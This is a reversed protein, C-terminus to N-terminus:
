KKPPPNFNFPLDVAIQRPVGDKVRPLFRWLRIAELASEGFAPDTASVVKPDVIRGAPSIAFHLVAHGRVGQKVLSAPYEAPPGFYPKPPADTVDAIQKRVMGDLKSEIVEFPMASHFVEMGGVFVHTAYRGEGIPSALMVSGAIRQPKHPELHGIERVFFIREGAKTRMDIVLFVDDLVFRSEFEARFKFEHNVREGTEFQTAETGIQLDRVTVYLPAYDPAPELAYGRKSAETLKGSGDNVFPADGVVRLVPRMQGRYDAYLRNQAKASTVAALVVVMGVGISRFTGLSM